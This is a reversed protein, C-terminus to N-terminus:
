AKRKQIFLSLIMFVAMFAAFILFSLDASALQFLKMVATQLYTALFQGAFVCCTFIANATPVKATPLIETLQLCFDTSILSPGVSVCIFGIWLMATNLPFAYVVLGIILLM